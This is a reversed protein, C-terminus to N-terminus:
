TTIIVNIFCVCANVYIFIHVCILMDCIYIHTYTYFVCMGM